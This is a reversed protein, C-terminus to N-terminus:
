MLEKWRDAFALEYETKIPEEWEELHTLHYFKCEECLYFRVENRFRRGDKSNKNIASQASKKDFKKKTCEM